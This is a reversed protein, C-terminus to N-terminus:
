RRADTGAIAERAQDILSQSGPGWSSNTPAVRELEATWHQIAAEDDRAVATMAMFTVDAIDDTRRSAAHALVDWAEDLRGARYLLAGYTNEIAPSGPQREDAIRALEVAREYTHLPLGPELAVLWALHDLVSVPAADQVRESTLAADLAEDLAMAAAAHDGSSTAHDVLWGFSRLTDHEFPGAHRRLGRVADQLAELAETGGSGHLDAWAELARARYELDARRPSMHQLHDLATRAGELADEHVGELMRHYGWWWAADARKRPHQWTNVTAIEMADTALQFSVPSAGWSRVYSEVWVTSVDGVMAAHATDAPTYTRRVESLHLIARDVRPRDNAVLARYLELVANPVEITRSGYATRLRAVARPMPGSACVQALEDRVANAEDVRGLAELAQIEHVLLPASHLSASRSGIVGVRAERIAALRAEHEGEAKLGRARHFHLMGIFWHDEPLRPRLMEIANDAAIIIQRDGKTWQMCQLELELARIRRSHTPPHMRGYLADAREALRAIAASTQGSRASFATLLLQDGVLEVVEPDSADGLADLVPDAFTPDAIRIQRPPTALLSRCADALDAHGIAELRAAGLAGAMRMVRPWRDDDLERLVNSLPWLVEYREVDNADGADRLLSRAALLHPRAAEPYGHAYLARGIGARITAEARPRGPFAGDVALAAAELVELASRDADTTVDPDAMGLVHVLFDTVEEAEAQRSEATARSVDAEASALVADSRAAKERRATDLSVAALASTLVLGISAAIVVNRSRALRRGLVYTMSDRRAAIPEGRRWRALDSALASATEYRRDPEVAMARVLITDADGRLRRNADGARLVPGAAVHQLIAATGANPPLDYPLRGTLVEFALVGLGYVDCRTDVHRPDGAAQEPSMYAPTGVVLGDATVASEHEGDGLLRAVGFDLVKVDGDTTVLVNAPKLDRHVVGHRHAHGVANCVQELLRVREISALHREDAWADIPRGDVLEMAIYPTGLRADTGGELVRAIGPHELRGLAEMEREFRARTRPSATRLVKVAVDRRPRTQEARYVIGAGGEGLVGTIRYPGVREPIEFSGVSELREASLNGLTGIVGFDADRLRDLRDLGPTSTDSASLLELVSRELDPDGGCARRVREGRPALTAVGAGGPEDAALEAEVVEDFAARIRRYRAPDVPLAEAKSVSDPPGPRLSTM